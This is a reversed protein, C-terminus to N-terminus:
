RVRYIFEDEKIGKRRVSGLFVGAKLAKVEGRLLEESRLPLAVVLSDRKFEHFQLRRAALAALLEKRGLVLARMKKELVAPEAFGAEVARRLAGAAVSDERIKEWLREIRLDATSVAEDRKGRLAELRSILKERDPLKKTPAGILAIVQGASVTDGMHVLLAVSDGKAVTTRHVSWRKEEGRICIAREVAYDARYERGLTLLRENAGVILLTFPDPAGAVLFRGEISEKTVLDNARCEVWVEHTRSIENYDRVASEITGQARRVFREYGQYAVLLAPICAV